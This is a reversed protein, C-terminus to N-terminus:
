ENPISRIKIIIAKIKEADKSGQTEVGSSIDVAFPRIKLVASIINEINLGGALFFPKKAEGILHWDFARGMGGTKNDLLLYDACTDAWKQVDGTNLVPVAKIIPKDTQAKLKEIYTENEDGHLQIIDVIGSHVLSLINEPTEDAFVGVLTIDPSLIARLKEAQRPTVKRKSEAFVFGAYEPKAANVAEIDCLRTLGCIKIKTM